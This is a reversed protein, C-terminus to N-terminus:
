DTSVTALMELIESGALLFAGAGFPATGAKSVLGPRRGVGQVWGLRGDGGVSSALGEWARLTPPMYVDPDLLGENVGWALGHCLLATGSTEGPYPEWPDLLSTRWLGDGGQLGIVREAMLAHVRTLLGHSQHDAPLFELTRAIGSLVWGNGRSWFTRKGHRSLPPAGDRNDRAAADRHFLREEGDFLPDAADWWMGPLPDIFATDGSVDAARVLAPPDMFLADCWWWIRDASEESELLVRLGDLTAAARSGDLTLRALDLYVQGSAHDGAHLQRPGLQWDNARAWREAAALYTTDGTAEYASVAGIMFVSQTWDPKPPGLNQIQWDFVSRMAGEVGVSTPANAVTPPPTFVKPSPDGVTPEQAGGVNVRPACGSVVAVLACITGTLVAVGIRRLVRHGMPVGETAAVHHLDPIDSDGAAPFAAGRRTFSRGAVIRLAYWM